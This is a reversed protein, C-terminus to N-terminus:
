LNKGSQAEPNVLGRLEMARKGSELLGEQTSILTYHGMKRGIKAERKGYLHLFLGPESLLLQWDPEGSQWLDGLLNVMVGPSRLDVSGLPLGCVARIHQAFQSTMTTELTHHGSNHTRPALENVILDGNEMVFFEATILGVVGLKEAIASTIEQAKRLVTPDLKAPVSTVDLIGNRHVNAQVPFCLPQGHDRQFTRACIVSAESAFGIRQELVARPASLQKWASEVDDGPKLSIQGKGDYGLVATKLISPANLDTLGAGLEEASTIVRFPAVPFGNNKLFEKELVRDQCVRVVAASPRVPVRTELFELAGIPINEFELTVVDVAEAFRALADLDDFPATISLDACSCAPGNVAEDFVVVRYGLSKAAMASMRGLQGSGLIGITAGPLFIPGPVPFKGESAAPAGNSNDGEIKIM